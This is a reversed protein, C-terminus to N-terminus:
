NEENIIEVLLSSIQQNLKQRLEQILGKIPIGAPEIWFLV